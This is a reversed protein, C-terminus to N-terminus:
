KPSAGVTASWGASRSPRTSSPSRANPSARDPADRRPLPPQDLARLPDGRRPRRAGVGRADRDGRRARAHAGDRAVHPGVRARLRGRVGPRAGGVRTRAARGARSRGPLVRPSGSCERRGALRVGLAQQAREAAVTRAEAREFDGSFTADSAAWAAVVPFLPHDDGGPIMSATVAWDRAADGIAM